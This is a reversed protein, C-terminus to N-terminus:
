EGDIREMILQVLGLAEPLRLEPWRAMLTPLPGLLNLACASCYNDGLYTVAAPVTGPMCERCWPRSEANLMKIFAEREAAITTEPM